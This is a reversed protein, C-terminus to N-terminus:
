FYPIILFLFALPYPHQKLQNRFASVIVELDCRFHVLRFAPQFRHRGKCIGNAPGQKEANVIVFPQNSQIVRLLHAILDGFPDIRSDLWCRDIDQGWVFLVSLHEKGYLDIRSSCRWVIIVCVADLFGIHPAPVFGNRCRIM